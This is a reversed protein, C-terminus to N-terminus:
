RSSRPVGLESDFISDLSGGELVRSPPLPHLDREERQPRAVLMFASLAEAM